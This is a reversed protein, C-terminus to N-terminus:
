PHISTLLLFSIFLMAAAALSMYLTKIVVNSIAQTKIM